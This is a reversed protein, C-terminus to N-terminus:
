YIGLLHEASLVRVDGIQVQGFGRWFPNHSTQTRIWEIAVPVFEPTCQMTLTYWNPYKSADDPEFRTRFIPHVLLERESEPILFVLHYGLGRFAESRLSLGTRCLTARGTLTFLPTGSQLVMGLEAVHEPGGVNHFYLEERPYAEISGIRQVM